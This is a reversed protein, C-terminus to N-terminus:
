PVLLWCRERLTVVELLLVPVEAPHLPLYPNNALAGLTHLVFSDFTSVTDLGASVGGGM